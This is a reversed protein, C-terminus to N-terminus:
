LSPKHQRRPPPHHRHLSPTYGAGLDSSQDSPAQPSSASRTSGNPAIPAPAPAALSPHSHLLIQLSGDKQECLMHATKTLTLVSRQGQRRQAEGRTPATYKSAKEGRPKRAM